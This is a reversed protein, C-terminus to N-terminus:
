KKKDKKNKSLFDIGWGWNGDGLEPLPSQPHESDHSHVAALVATGQLPSASASNSWLLTRRGGKRGGAGEGGVRDKELGTWCTLLYM